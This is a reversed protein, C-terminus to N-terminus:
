IFSFDKLRKKFLIFTEYTMNILFQIMKRSNHQKILKNMNLEADEIDHLTWWTSTQSMSVNEGMEEGLVEEEHKIKHGLNATNRLKIWM